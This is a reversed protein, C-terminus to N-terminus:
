RILARIEAPLEFASDPASDFTLERLEVIQEMGMVQLTIRTPTRFGGFDRYSDMLTVADLPGMATEQRTMTGVLLGTEESYCDHTQRGSRWVLQVKLCDRGGLRTREVTTASEILDSPRLASDFASEELTQALEAGQLLRPGEAPNMSWAVGDSTGSRIEGFGAISVRMAARNPRAAFMEMDAVLGQAPISVEGVTRMSNYGALVDRGGIAEQYRAIVASAEPLAQTAAPPEQAAAPAAASFVPAAAAACLAALSLRRRLPNFRTM